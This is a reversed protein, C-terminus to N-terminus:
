VAIENQAAKRTAEELKDELNEKLTREESLLRQLERLMAAHDSQEQQRGCQEERLKSRLEAMKAEWAAAQEAAKAQAEELQRLAAEKGQILRKRDAQFAAETRAKEEALTSLAQSLAAVQDGSADDQGADSTSGEGDQGDDPASSAGSPAKGAADKAALCEGSSSRAKDSGKSAALAKLSLELADKEKQLGKYARVLDGLRAEYRQLKEKQTCIIECLERRNAKDPITAM